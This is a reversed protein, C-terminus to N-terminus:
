REKEIMKGKITERLEKLKLFAQGIDEDLDFYDNRVDFKMGIASAYKCETCVLEFERDNYIKTVRGKFNSNKNTTLYRNNALENAVVIDGVRFQIM